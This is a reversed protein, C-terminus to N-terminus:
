KTGNRAVGASLTGTLAVGVPSTTRPKPDPAVPPGDAGCAALLALGASITLVRIM